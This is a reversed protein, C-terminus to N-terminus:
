NEESLAALMATLRQRADAAVTDLAVNGSLGMM